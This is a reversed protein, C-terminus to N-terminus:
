FVTAYTGLSFSHGMGYGHTPWAWYEMWIPDMQKSPFPSEDLNKMRSKKRQGREPIIVKCSKNFYLIYSIFIKYLIISFRIKSETYM